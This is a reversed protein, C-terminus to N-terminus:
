FRFYIFPNYSSSLLMSISILFVILCLVYVIGECFFNKKKFKELYNNIFPFSILLALLIYPISVMLDFNNFLVGSWDSSKYVFLRSILVLADNLNEIRFIIWGILVLLMTLIWGLVKPIDNWFNKLLTKELILLLCYYLGWVVFNWSAGHWLGTLFWVIILNRIWKAKSCRNGGLPIYVYDRFWTSLSIHWRRWFGQISTAVYPYNFNELFKFGFMRGMGIAMDSYGSFDFYIQFAYAIAAIWVLGTGLSDMPKSYITDAILAMNNAIIIKKGFGLIFRQLGIVFDNFTEKRNTLEDEITEYRVIPGAILQPFLSIYTALKLINKQVAVEGRYVDIVYSMIQFTYFSIGIPLAINALPINTNFINNISLIGFDWYKFFVLLAINIIVDIIFIIKKKRNFKSMLLALAYNFGISFLMLLVYKPEGWAYFVLSFLCLILNRYTRNKILFYLALVIPFFAFIFVSSSFLM